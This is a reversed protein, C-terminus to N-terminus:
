VILELVKELQNRSHYGSTLCRERGAVAIKERLKDNNLYFRIKDQLEAASGFYEAEVGEKFLSLHDETREALMFVATAPIEFTRTTTTEPIRKSLLGLAIKTCALARPYDEGWIGGGAVHVRAWRHFQAYRPWEDGWIRLRTAVRRAAKLCKAYHRQCHGIFTVDSGFAGRDRVTPVRPVFRGDFGQLVLMVQRAGMARYLDLEFPKTTVILDYLPICAVFHRSKHQLLQADPTYHVLRAGTKERAHALTEPYIHRGKDVWVLDVAGQRDSVQRLAENLQWVVPGTDVRHALSRFLRANGVLWPSTDVSVVRHGMQQLIRMRELCTGGERLEGIYLIRLNKKM